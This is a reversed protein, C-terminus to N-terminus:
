LKIWESGNSYYFGKHKKIILWKTTTNLVIYVQEKTTYPKPLLDFYDVTQYKIKELKNEISEEINNKQKIIRTM